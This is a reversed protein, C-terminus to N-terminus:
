GKGHAVGMGKIINKISTKRPYSDIEHPLGHVNEHCRKCLTVLYSPPYDWPEKNPIYKIHHVHLQYGWEEKGECIQCTHDDRRLILYRAKIWRNDKLKESYDWEDPMSDSIFENSDPKHNSM